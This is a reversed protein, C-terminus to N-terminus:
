CHIPRQAREHISVGAGLDDSIPEHELELDDADAVSGMTHAHAVLSTSREDADFRSRYSPWFGSPRSVISSQRSNFNVSAGVHGVRGLLGVRGVRGVQGVHSVVTSRRSAVSCQDHSRGVKRANREGDAIRRADTGLNCHLGSIIGAHMAHGLDDQVPWRRGRLERWKRGPLQGPVGSSGGIVGDHPGDLVGLGTVDIGDHVAGMLLAANAM